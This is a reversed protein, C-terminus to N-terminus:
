RIIRNENLSYKTVTKWDRRIVIDATLNINDYVISWQTNSTIDKPNPAQSAAALAQWVTEKTYNNNTELINMIKDYRERGHGYVGNKQYPKVFDKYMVFFNTVVPSKTVTLKRSESNCDYEIVRGDGFADTVYFHYDRGSSAFMNYKEFLKVAEETTAARDLVTRIILTTATTPKGSHQRVPSSDLTLVAISVGKENIGDLCIFPSLLAALKTEDSKEPNNANVNDLAAFGISKYGGDPSTYVLMASTNNKFDYNRGMMVKGSSKMTFASCGFNPANIHVPYDPLVEKVIADISSQDDTIGREIIREISYDYCINMSYLNYDSYSTLKKISQITKTRSDTM